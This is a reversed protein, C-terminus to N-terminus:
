KLDMLYVSGSNSLFSVGKSFQELNGSVGNGSDFRQLFFGTLPDISIIGVKDFPILMRRGRILIEGPTGLDVYQRWILRGTTSICHIGSTPSVFYLRDEMKKIFTVGYARFRWLPSGTKLDLATIGQRYTSVYVINGDIVPKADADIYNEDELKELSASWIIQGRNQIDVNLYRGDSLGYILNKGSIAPSSHGRVTFGGLTEHRRSWHLKGDDLSVAYLMNKATVAYVVGNKYITDGLFSGFGKFKWKIKGTKISLRYLEGSITGIILADKDELLLARSHIPSFLKTKWILNKNISICRMLGDSAGIFIRSGDSSFRPTSFQEPINSFRVASIIKKEWRITLVSSSPGEGSNIRNQSPSICGTLITLLFFFFFKM